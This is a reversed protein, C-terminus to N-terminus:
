SSPLKSPSTAKKIIESTGKLATHAIAAVGAIVALNVFSRHYRGLDLDLLYNVGLAPVQYWISSTVAKINNELINGAGM